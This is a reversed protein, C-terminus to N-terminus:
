NNVETQELIFNTILNNSISPNKKVLYETKNTKIILEQIKNYELNRIQHKVIDKEKWFIPPKFAAIVNDINKESLVKKKIKLLRKLKIMYTRLILFNDEMVFVNENIINLTRRKNQMLSSDVLESINFNEALNTLKVIEKTSIKKKNLSFLQIKELENTLNIRDGKSREVILNINQQSISIKKEKFFNSAIASLTQSSDEYFAVCVTTANKEFLNRIKSKKELNNSKLIISLDIVKKEIIEEIVKIIKDTVRSIIILKKNEFFSRNLIEEKFTNPDKLIESEDYSFVNNSLTPKFITQITEEILGKNNGYLLFFDYNNLKKKKLEYYKIIM